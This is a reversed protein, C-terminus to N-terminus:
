THSRFMSFVVINSRVDIYRIRGATVPDGVTFLVRTFGAVFQLGAM